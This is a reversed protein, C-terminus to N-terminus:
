EGDTSVEPQWLVTVPGFKLLQESFASEDTDACWWWGISVKSRWIADYTESQVRVLSGPPLANLDKSTKIIRAPPRWGALNALANTTARDRRFIADADVPETGRGPGVWGDLGAANGDDWTDELVTHLTETPQDPM